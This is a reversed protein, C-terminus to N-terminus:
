KIKWIGKRLILHGSAYFLCYQSIGGVWGVAEAMAREGLLNGRAKEHGLSEEGVGIALQSVIDCRSGVHLSHLCLITMATCSGPDVDGQLTIIRLM